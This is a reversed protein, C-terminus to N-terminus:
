WAAYMEPHGSVSLFVQKGIPLYLSLPNVLTTPCCSLILSHPTLQTQPPHTHSSIGNSSCSVPSSHRCLACHLLPQQWRSLPSLRARHLGFAASVWSQERFTPATHGRSTGLGPTAGFPAAGGHMQGRLAEIPNVVFTGTLTAQGTISVPADHAGDGVGVVPDAIVFTVGCRPSLHTDWYLADGVLGQTTGDSHPLPCLM